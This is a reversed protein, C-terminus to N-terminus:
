SPAGGTGAAEVAYGHARWQTVDEEFRTAEFGRERLKEVADVAMLCYRGRCYAVIERDRPLDDLRGELERIPISIAGAIHGADYEEVPRVDIVTVDGASVREVLTERSVGEMASREDATARILADIELLRGEALSRMSMFFAVVEDDAPRYRVRVGEREAEVLRAHRLVQLHRSTNAVSQGVASALVEVTRPGQVLLEMIELRPGSSVAKGIRAIEAYINAKLGM